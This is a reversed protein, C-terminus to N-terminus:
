FTHAEELADSVVPDILDFVLLHLRFIKYFLDATPLQGPAGLDAMDVECCM